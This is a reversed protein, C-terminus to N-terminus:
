FPLSKPYKWISVVKNYANNLVQTVIQIVPAFHFDKLNICNM